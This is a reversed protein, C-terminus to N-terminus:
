KTSLTIETESGSLINELEEASLDGVEGLKTYAWSNTGYFFVIQNGSYLMVDGAKTTTQKDDCPLAKGLQCVKEFGGYNSASITVDDELLMDRLAEASENDELNVIFSSSGVTVRIQHDTLTTEIGAEMDTQEKSENTELQVGPDQQVDKTNDSVDNHNDSKCGTLLLIFIVFAAFVRKNIM